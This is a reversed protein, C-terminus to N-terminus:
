PAPLGAASATGCHLGAMITGATGVSTREGAHLSALLCAASDPEVALVVPHPTGPQRYHTVVAQALSGVGVPVVVLDPARDLQDDIEGLLTQYGAVIWAPIQEYGPWATDQVLAHGPRGAARAAARVTEDYDGD